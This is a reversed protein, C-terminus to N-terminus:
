GSILGVALWSIARSLLADDVDNPNALKHLAFGDVLSELVIAVEEPSAELKLDLSRQYDRVLAAITTHLESLSESLRSHMLPDRLAHSWFEMFLRFMEPDQRLFEIWLEGVEQAASFVGEADPLRAKYRELLHSFHLDWLALFVGEKGGFHSYLAGITRGAGGAIDYISADQYGSEIFVARASELLLERTKASSEARTVRRPPKRAESSM